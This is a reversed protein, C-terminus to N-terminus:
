KVLRADYGYEGQRILYGQHGMVVLYFFVNSELAYNRPIQFGTKFTNYTEKKKLYGEVRKGNLKYTLVPCYNCLLILELSGVKGMNIYGQM